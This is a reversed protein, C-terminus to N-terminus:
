GRNSERNLFQQARLFISFWAIVCSHYLIYTSLMAFLARFVPNALLLGLRYTSSSTSSLECAFQTASFILIILVWCVPDFYKSVIRLAIDGYTPTTVRRKLLEYETPSLLYRTPRIPALFGNAKLKADCASYEPLPLGRNSWEVSFFWMLATISGGVIASVNGVLSLLYHQTTKCMYDYANFWCVTALLLLLAITWKGLAARSRTLILM